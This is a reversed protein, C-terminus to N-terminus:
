ASATIKKGQNLAEALMSGQLTNRKVKLNGARNVRGTLVYEDGAFIKVHMDRFQRLRLIIAKKTKSVGIESEDHQTRQGEYGGTRREGVRSVPIVVVEEGYSYIEYEPKGSEFDRVQIVPRSLDKETMGVPVKVTMSLEYVKEIFGKEIHIITDVVHPIVGLEVR